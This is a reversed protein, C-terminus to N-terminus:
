RRRMRYLAVLGFVGAGLLALRGPEPLFTLKLSDSSSFNGRQLQIVGTPSPFAVYAYIQNPSVLSINGGMHYTPTRSDAATYTSTTVSLGQPAFNQVMGTFFPMRTSAWISAGMLTTPTGGTNYSSTTLNTNTATLIGIGVNPKWGQTRGRDRYFSLGFDYDGLQGNVVGFYTDTVTVPMVGGLGNPGYTVKFMGSRPAAALLPSATTNVTISAMGGKAFYGTKFSGTQNSITATAGFFPYGPFTATFSYPPITFQGAPVTFVGTGTMVSANTSAFVSTPCTPTTADGGIFFGGPACWDRYTSRSEVIGNFLAPSAFAAPALLIASLGLLMGKLSFRISKSM